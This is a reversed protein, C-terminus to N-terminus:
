ACNMDKFLRRHRIQFFAEKINKGHLVNQPVQLYEIPMGGSSLSCLSIRSREDLQM